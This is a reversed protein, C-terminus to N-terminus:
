KLIDEIGEYLNWKPDFRLLTQAKAIDYVFVPFDFERAPKLEM